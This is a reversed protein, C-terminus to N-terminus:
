FSDSFKPRNQPKMIGNMFMRRADTVEAVNWQTLDQDFSSAFAFMYSMETANSTDWNGIDQNFAIAYAFMSQMYIVQSTKWRGIDQNFLRAGAFMARMTTVKSTDWNGIDENFTAANAFIMAMSTVHSTNWTGIPGLDPHSAGWGLRLATGYPDMDQKAMILTITTLRRECRARFHERWTPPRAVGDYEYEDDTIDPISEVPLPWLAHEKDWGRVECAWRWFAADRGSRCWEAFARNTACLDDVRRCDGDAEYVFKLVIELLDSDLMDILSSPPPPPPPSASRYSPQARPSQGNAGVPLTILPLM